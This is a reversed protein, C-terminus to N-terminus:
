QSNVKRRRGANFIYFHAILRLGRLKRLLLYSAIVQLSSWRGLNLRKFPPTRWSHRLSNCLM